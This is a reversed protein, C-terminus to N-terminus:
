VRLPQHRLQEVSLGKGAKADPAVLAKRAGLQPALDAAELELQATKGRPGEQSHLDVCPHGGRRVLRAQDAEALQLLDTIGEGVPDGLRAVCQALSGLGLGGVALQELPHQGGRGLVLPKLDGAGVEALPPAAM